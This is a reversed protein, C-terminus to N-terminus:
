NDSILGLPVSLVDISLEVGKTTENFKQLAGAASDSARGGSM